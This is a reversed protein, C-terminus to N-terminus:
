EIFTVKHMCLTLLYPSLNETDSSSPSPEMGTHHKRSFNTAMQWLFYTPSSFASRIMDWMWAIHFHSRTKREREVSRCQIIQLTRTGCERRQSDGLRSRWSEEVIIATWIGRLSQLPIALIQSLARECVCLRWCLALCLNFLKAVHVFM